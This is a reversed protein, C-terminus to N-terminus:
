IRKILSKARHILLISIIMFCLLFFDRILNRFEKALRKQLSVDKLKYELMFSAGGTKYRQAYDYLIELTNITRWGTVLLVITIVITLYDKVLYRFLDYIIEARKPLMKKNLNRSVHKM